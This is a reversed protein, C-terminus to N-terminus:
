QQECLRSFLSRCLWLAVLGLLAALAVPGGGFMDFLALFAAFIIDAYGM